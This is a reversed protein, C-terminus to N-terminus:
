ATAIPSDLFYIIQKLNQELDEPTPTVCAPSRHSDEAAIQAYRFEDYALGQPYRCTYLFEVGSLAALIASDMGGSLCLGGPVDSRMRLSVSDRLLWALEEAAEGVTLDEKVPEAPLAWYQGISVRQGDFTMYHAPLLSQIKQFLTKEYLPCELSFFSP